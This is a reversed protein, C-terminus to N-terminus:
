RRPNLLARVEAVLRKLNAPKTLLVDAGLSAPTQRDDITGTLVLVPLSPQLTGARLTRIVQDGRQHPMTIDLVALDVRDRALREAAERGDAAEIVEYGHLRLAEAVVARLDPDDDAVLIRAPAPAPRDGDSTAAAAPLGRGTREHSRLWIRVIGGRNTDVRLRGGQQEVLARPVALDRARADATREDRVAIAVFEGDRAATVAITSHGPAEDIADALLAALAQVLRDYEGLIPPLGHEISTDVRIGRAAAARGLDLLADVILREVALPRLTGPTSSADITSLAIIEQIMRALRDCGRVATTLLEASEADLPRADGALVLELAGRITTVPTRLEHSVRAVLENNQAVFQERARAARHAQSVDRLVVVWVARDARARSVRVDYVVDAATITLEPTASAGAIAAGALFPFLTDVSRGKWEAPGGALRLAAANLDVLTRDAAVVLIPDALSDM